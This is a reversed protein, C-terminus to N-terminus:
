AADRAAQLRRLPGGLGGRESLQQLAAEDRPPAWVRTEVDERVPVVHSMQTIYDKAERLAASLKRSRALPAGVPEERAADELLANLDPYAQVLATATKEGVGKVGPLGDSPDGRLVALETYRRAPVGYKELVAAGDFEALESVGRVTFLVRVRPDAVLQLLDRDGTVIDVRGGSPARACLAAIADDAEWGPAEAQTEGLAELVRRLLAFQPPLADPDAPRHAKYGAFAEVRQAPRWDHDYVHIVRAPRHGAVLRATMDLYGHVANVPNGEADAISQPLAFFARYMLSSTDLLLCLSM